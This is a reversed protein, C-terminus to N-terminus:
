PANETQWAAAPSQRRARNWRVFLDLLSQSDSLSMGLVAAKFAEYRRDDVFSKWNKGGHKSGADEISAFLRALDDMSQAAQSRERMEGLQSASIDKLGRFTSAWEEAQQCLSRAGPVPAPMDSAVSRPPMRPQPMDDLSFRGFGEEICEGIALQSALAEYLKGAGAGTIRIASGAAIAVQSPRPLGTTANFGFVPRHDSVQGGSIDQIDMGSWRALANADLRAQYRLLEDRLILDSECVLVFQGAACQTAARVPELWAASEVDVPRGGRGMRLWGGGALQFIDGLAKAAAEDRVLVDSVFATNEVIEETSFLDQDPNNADPVRTRLRQQMQPSFRRWPASENERYLYEDAGPRKLKVDPKPGAGLRDVEGGDGLLAQVWPAHAWWPILGATASAKPTGISRPIVRVAMRPLSGIDCEAGNPLPLADGWLIGAQHLEQALDLNGADIAFGAMAGRLTRGRIFSDAPIINGPHGTRALCLPDLNRLLVRLRAPYSAPTGLGSLIGQAERKQLKSRIRGSGRQRGHGLHTTGRIIREITQEFVPDDPFQLRAHFISGARAYETFRLTDDAATGTQNDIRTAGWVMTEAVQGRELWASTLCLVGARSGARGFLAAIVDKEVDAVQSAVDRFVGKLHTAPICPRGDRDRIQLDDIDGMGLGTGVHLDELAEIRLSYLAM